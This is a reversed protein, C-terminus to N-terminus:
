STGDEKSSRVLHGLEVEVLAGDDDASWADVDADTTGAGLEIEIDKWKTHLQPVSALLSRTYLHLPNGFVQETTGVEVVSGRRLIV